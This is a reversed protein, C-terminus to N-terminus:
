TAVITGSMGPHFTCHFETTGDPVPFTATMVDGSTMTGTSLDLRDITFNHADSGKNTIEVTVKEGSPLELTTPAIENDHLTVRVAGPGAIGTQVDGSAEARCATAAIALAVLPATMWRNM